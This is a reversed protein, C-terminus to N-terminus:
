VASDGSSDGGWSRTARGPDRARPRETVLGKEAAQPRWPSRREAPPHATRPRASRRKLAAARAAREITPRPACNGYRRRRASRLARPPAAAQAPVPGPAPRPASPCTLRRPEPPRESRPPFGRPVPAHADYRRGPKGARPRPARIGESLDGPAAPGAGPSGLGPAAPPLAKRRAARPAEQPSLAARPEKGATRGAPRHCRGARRQSTLPPSRGASTATVSVRHRLAAARQKLNTRLSARSAPVYCHKRQADGGGPGAQHQTLATRSKM